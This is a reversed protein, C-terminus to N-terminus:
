FRYTLDIGFSRQRPLTFGIARRTGANEVYRILAPSTQDDTLNKAWLAVELGGGGMFQDALTDLSLGARLNIVNSDGTHALNYIQAYRKSRHLFDLRLYWDMGNALVGNFTNSLSWQNKSVQPLGRGSIDLTACLHLSRATCRDTPAPGFPLVFGSGPDEQGFIAAAERYSSTIVTFGGGVGVATAPLTAEKIDTHTYAYTLRLDWFDAPRARLDLELGRVRTEGLNNLISTAGMNNAGATTFTLQQDEWETSYVAAALQVQEELNVKVGLEYTEATSEDVPIQSSLLPQNFTNVDGPKNGTALTGYFLVDDNFRYDLTLRYLIDDYTTSFDKSPYQGETAVCPEGDDCFLVDTVEVEEENYRVELGLTLIESLDYELAAFVAWNTRNEDNGATYMLNDAGPVAITTVSRTTVASSGVGSDRSEESSEFDYWYAGLIWRLREDAPSSLRLEFQQEESEVKDDSIFGARSQSAGVNADGRGPMAPGFSQDQVSQSDYDHWAANFTLMAWDLDYDLTGSLRTAEYELGLGYYGTDLNLDNDYDDNLIDEVDVEGCYYGSRGYATGMYCNNREQPQIAIAYPGDDSEEQLLRGTLKMKDSLRLELLAVVSYTEEEGVNFSRGAGNVFSDGAADLRQRTADAPDPLGRFRNTYQGDYQYGSFSVMFGANAGLPGSLTLETRYEADEGIGVELVGEYNETPRKLIYNIAGALTSRGYLASQPGKAVEVRELAAYPVTPAGVGIFFGDIFLGANAGGQITSQGRIAPRFDQRGFAQAFDFGPTFDSLEQMTQIGAQKLASDNFATVSLPVDQLSEERKRATVMVEELATAAQQALVRSPTTLAIGTCSLLLCATYTGFQCFGNHNKHRAKTLNKM